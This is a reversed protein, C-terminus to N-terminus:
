SVAGRVVGRSTEQPVDQLLGVICGDCIWLLQVLVLRKRWLHVSFCRVVQYALHYILNFDSRVIDENIKTGANSLDDELHCCSSRALNTKTNLSCFHGAPISLTHVLVESRPHLPVPLFVSVVLKHFSIKQSFFM